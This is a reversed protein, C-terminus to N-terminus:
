GYSGAIVSRSIHGFSIFESDQLSAQMEMNMAANNVAPLIHYCGLYRDNSSWILSILYISFM